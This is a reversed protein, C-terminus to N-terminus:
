TSNKYGPIKSLEKVAEILLGIINGYAVSKMQEPSDDTFVVEPIIEEIEQAIVGLNRKDSGPRTFYVGRLKLLKDLASDVTQVNEKLRRDSSAILDSGTITGSVTLNSPAGPAGMSSSNAFFGGALNVNGNITLNANIGFNNPASGTVGTGAPIPAIELVPSGAFGPASFSYTSGGYRYLHLSNANIGGGTVDSGKIFSYTTSISSRNGNVFSLSVPTTNENNQINLPNQFNGNVQLNGNVILAPDSFPVNNNEIALYGSTGPGATGGRGYIGNNFSNRYPFIGNGNFEQYGTITLGTPGSSGTLLGWSGPGGGAYYNGPVDYSGTYGTIGSVRAPGGGGIYGGGGFNGAALTTGTQGRNIFTRRNVGVISNSPITILGDTFFSGNFQGLSAGFTIQTTGTLTLVRNSGIVPDTFSGNLVLTYGTYPPSTYSGGSWTINSTAVTATGNLRVTSNGQISGTSGPTYQDFIAFSNDNITGTPGGNVSNISSAISSPNLTTSTTTFSSSPFLMSTNSITFTTPGAFTYTTNPGVTNQTGAQSFTIVIGSQGTAILSGPSGNMFTGGTSTYSNTLTYQWSQPDTLTAIGAVGNQRGGQPYPFGDDGAAGGSGGTSGAGGGPVWLFPVGTMGIPAFSANLSAGGGFPNGPGTQTWTFIGTVGVVMNLISAGGAGGIGANSAGGAGWANVTYAGPNLTLSGTTGVGSPVLPYDGFSADYTIKTQGQIDMYTTPNDTNIGVRYNQTDIAVASQATLGFPSIYLMNGQSGYLGPNFLGSQIYSDQQFTSIELEGGDLSSTQVNIEPVNLVRITTDYILDSSSRLGTPTFYTIQGQPGSLGTIGSGGQSGTYTIIFTAGSQGVSIYTSGTIAILSSVIFTSGSVGVAIGTSGTVGVTRSSIIYPQGNGPNNLTIGNGAQILSTVLQGGPVTSLTIGPGSIFTAGGPGGGTPLAPEFSGWFIKNFHANGASGTNGILNFFASGSSGSTGIQNIYAQQIVQSTTSGGLQRGYYTDVNAIDVAVQYGTLGTIIKPNVLHELSNAMSFPNPQTM